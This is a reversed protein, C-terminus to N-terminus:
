AKRSPLISRLPKLFYRGVLLQLWPARFSKGAESRTRALRIISYVRNSTQRDTMKAEYPRNGGCQQVGATDAKCANRAIDRTRPSRV